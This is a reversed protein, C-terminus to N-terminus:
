GKSANWWEFPKAFFGAHCKLDSFSKIRRAPNGAMVSGPPVDSTVVAGGYIQSHHGIRTGPAIFVSAGISVFSEVHCKPVCDSYRPCPPHLDDAFVTQPGIFVNNEIVVREMFVQANIRVDNGVICGNKIVAKPGIRVRDGFQNNTFITTQDSIDFDDGATVGSYVTCRSGIFARKGIAVSGPPHFRDQIGIIAFPEVIADAGMSVNEYIIFEGFAMHVKKNQAKAEDRSQIKQLFLM